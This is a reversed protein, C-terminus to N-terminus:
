DEILFGVAQLDQWFSPYSKAVVGPDEIELAGYKIAMPAFAMAMRHDKYTEIQTSPEFSFASFEAAHIKMWDNGCEIEVGLKELENQLALIRDTEKIKLTKLGTLKDEIRLGTCTVAVTQALDPCLTFDYEFYQPLEIDVKRLFVGSSAFETEVGFSKYLDAVVSDGQLSDRKLGELRVQGAKAFSM